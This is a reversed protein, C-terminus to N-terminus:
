RRVARPTALFLRVNRDRRAGALGRPRGGQFDLFALERSVRALTRDDHDVLWTELAVGGDTRVLRFARAQQPFDVLSATSILWYGGGGSRRPQVSNAHVHGAIAAVVRRSGDLAALAAGGGESSALPAHTFVVVWRGGAERLRRRLWAVQRPRVIGGAGADRRTTDLVIARVARGLDFTYDLLAGGGGGLGAARRLREVAERASFERRRRDPTVQMSRGPLGHALLRAAARADVAGAAAAALAQENLTVLKRSGVAVRRTEASPAVNGQVLLDHNGVVPYWPARVGPAWFPLQARELLGPRRPPDVDPRYYFPDAVSAAQVGEYRRAGSGPDIRGGGLIALAEDFENAQMNDVLDGTVVVGDLELRNLAAVAAALVQGTLAEQPRFASGFQGGVRDLMEVRAPSEEDLVHADTIQAFAALVGRVRASPALETRELLPEGPGHELVGDGDRDVWTAATTGGLTAGGGNRFMLAAVASAGVAFALAAIAIWVFRSRPRARAVGDAADGDLYAM